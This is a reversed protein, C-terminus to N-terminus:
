TIPPSLTMVFPGRGTWRGIGLKEERAFRLFLVDSSIFEDGSHDVWESGFSVLNAVVFDLYTLILLLEHDKKTENLPCFHNIARPCAQQAVSMTMSLARFSLNLIENAPCDLNSFFHQLWIQSVNINMSLM